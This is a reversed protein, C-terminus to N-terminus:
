KKATKQYDQPNNVIQLLQVLTFSQYKNYFDM